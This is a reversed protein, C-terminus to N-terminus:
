ELGLTIKLAKGIAELVPGSVRDLVAGIRAESVIRVPDCEIVSDKAFGGDGKELSWHDDPANISV